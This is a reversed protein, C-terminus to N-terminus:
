LVNCRNRKSSIHHDYTSFWEGETHSDYMILDFTLIIPDFGVTMVPHMCNTLIKCEKNVKKIALLLSYVVIVMAYDSVTFISNSNTSGHIYPFFHSHPLRSFYCGFFHQSELFHCSCIQQFTLM